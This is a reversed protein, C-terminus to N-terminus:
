HPLEKLIPTGPVNAAMRARHAELLDQYATQAALPYSGTM